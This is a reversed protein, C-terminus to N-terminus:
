RHIKEDETFAAQKLPFIELFFFLVNNNLYIRQLRFIVPELTEQVSVTFPLIRFLIDQFRAIYFRSFFHNKEM